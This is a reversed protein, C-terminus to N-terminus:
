PTLKTAAIIQKVRTETVGTGGVAGHPHGKLTEFVRRGASSVAVRFHTDWAPDNEDLNYWENPDGKFIDPFANFGFDVWMKQASSAMDDDGQYIRKAEANLEPILRHLAAGPCSTAAGPADRHGGTFGLPWWGQGHGYAVLEAIRRQTEPAPPTTSFEGIICIAHSKSNDGATHTGIHGAGVGEFVDVDPPDNDILFNYAIDPWGRGAPPPAMHFAQIARVKTEDAGSGTSHHLWLRPSPLPMNLVRRPPAANWGARSVINM